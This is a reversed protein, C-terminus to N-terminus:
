TTMVPRHAGVQFIANMYTRYRSENMVDTYIVSTTAVCQEPRKGGCLRAASCEELLQRISEQVQQVWWSLPSLM